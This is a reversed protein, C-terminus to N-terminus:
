KSLHSGSAQLRAKFLDAFDSVVSNKVAELSLLHAAWHQVAPTQAYWPLKVLPELLAFRMFVPAFAADVLAFKEGNFFPKATLVQELIAFKNFIDQQHPQAEEATKATWFLYQSVILTSAFEIWARNKAKQLASEPHLSPPSMEDLYENIVASEFLVEGETKLLPVKGLPSIQLFWAPPNDLDIYTITYPIKKYNLTIVSRQVFPCLNFSVLELAAM